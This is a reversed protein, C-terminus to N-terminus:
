EWGWIGSSQKITDSNERRSRTAASAEGKILTRKTAAVRKERRALAAKTRQKIVEPAITSASTCSWSSRRDDEDDDFNSTVLPPVSDCEEQKESSDQCVERNELTLQTLQEAVPIAKLTELDLLNKEVDQQMQEIEEDDKQTTESEEGESSDQDLGLEVLLDKEMQRTLGSAKIEVDVCDERRCFLRCDNFDFKLFLCKRM